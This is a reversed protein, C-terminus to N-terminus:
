RVRGPAASLNPQVQARRRDELYVVPCRQREAPRMVVEWALGMIACCNGLLAYGAAMYAYPNPM